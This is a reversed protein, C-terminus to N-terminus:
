IKLSSIGAECFHTLIDPCEDVANCWGRKLDRPDVDSWPYAWLGYARSLKIGLADGFNRPRYHRVFDIFQRRVERVSVGRRLAVQYSEYPNYENRGYRFGCYHVCADLPVERKTLPLALRSVVSM